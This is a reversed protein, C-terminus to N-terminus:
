IQYIHNQLECLISKCFTTANFIYVGLLYNIQHELHMKYLILVGGPERHTNLHITHHTISNMEEKIYKTNNQEPVAQM